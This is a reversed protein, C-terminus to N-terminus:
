TKKTGQGSDTPDSSRAEPNLMTRGREILLAEAADPGWAGGDRGIETVGVVVDVPAITRLLEGPARFIRGSVLRAPRM